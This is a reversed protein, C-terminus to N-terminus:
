ALDSQDTTQWAHTYYLSAKKKCALEIQVQRVSNAATYDASVKGPVACIVERGPKSLTM